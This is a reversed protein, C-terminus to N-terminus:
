IPWLLSADVTLRGDPMQEIPAPNSLGGIFPGDITERAIWALFGPRGDPLTVVRGAYFKLFTSGVLPHDSIMRFPGTPSESIVYQTGVWNGAEGTRELRARSHKGTCFFLYWFDGIKMVQPVEIEGFDSPGVVPPLANWTILDRSEALAVVGAGDPESGIASATTYM